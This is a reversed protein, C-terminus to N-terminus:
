SWAYMLVDRYLLVKTFWPDFHNMTLEFAAGRGDPERMGIAGMNLLYNKYGKTGPMIFLFCIHGLFCFFAWCLMCCVFYGGPLFYDTIWWGGPDFQKNQETSTMGRQQRDILLRASKERAAVWATTTIELNGGFGAQLPYKKGRDTDRATTERQQRFMVLKVFRRTAVQSTDLDM